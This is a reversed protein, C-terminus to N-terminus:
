GGAEGTSFSDEVFSTGPVLLNSSWQELLRQSAGTYAPCEEESGRMRELTDVLWM